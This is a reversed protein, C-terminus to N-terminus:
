FSLFSHSPIVCKRYGLEKNKKWIDWTRVSILFLFLGLGLILSARFFISYQSWQGLFGTNPNQLIPGGLIDAHEDDYAM